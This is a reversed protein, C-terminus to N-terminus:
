NFSNKFYFKTLRMPEEFTVYKDEIFYKGIYEASTEKDFGYIINLYINLEFLLSCEKKSFDNLIMATKFGNCFSPYNMYKTKEFLEYSKECITYYIYNDLNNM